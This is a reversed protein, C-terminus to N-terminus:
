SLGSGSFMTMVQEVYSLSIPLNKRVPADLELVLGDTEKRVIKVKDINVCYSRHCRIIGMNKLSGELNKMSNRIMFKQISNEDMYYIMVYNDAAELYLLDNRKISFKLEGKEDRFPIMIPSKNRENGNETSLKRILDNKEVWSLYLYSITYPLLLVLSTKKLSDKLAYGIDMIKEIVIHQLIVYVVSLSIIEAAIWFIYTLNNIEKKKNFQHMIIRSVAIVLLGSLILGSSYLFRNLDTQNNWNGVGFPAYLNIFVLAFVSTFILQRVTNKKDTLYGPIKNEFFSM